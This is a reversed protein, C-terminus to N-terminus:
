CTCKTIRARLPPACLDAARGRVGGATCFTHSNPPPPSLPPKPPALASPAPIKPYRSCAPNPAAFCACTANRSRGVLAIGMKSPFPLGGPLRWRGAGGQRGEEARASLPGPRIYCYSPSRLNDLSTPFCPRASPSTRHSAICWWLCFLFSVLSPCPASGSGMQPVIHDRCGSEAEFRELRRASVLARSGTQRGEDALVGVIREEKGRGCLSHTTKPAQEIWTISLGCGLSALLLEGAGGGGVAAGELVLAM